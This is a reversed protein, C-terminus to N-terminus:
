HTCDVIANSYYRIATEYEGTKFFENGQEKLKEADASAM